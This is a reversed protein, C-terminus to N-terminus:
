RSAHGTRPIRRPPPLSCICAFTNTDGVGIGNIETCSCYNRVCNDPAVYLEINVSSGKYSSALSVLSRDKSKTKFTSILLDCGRKM